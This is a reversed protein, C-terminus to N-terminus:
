KHSGSLVSLTANASLLGPHDCIKKLVTLAALVSASQNLAASVSDSRLFAQSSDSKSSHHFVNTNYFMFDFVCNHIM